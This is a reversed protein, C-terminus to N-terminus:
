WCASFAGLLMAGYTNEVTAGMTLGLSPFSNFAPGQSVHKTPSITDSSREQAYMTGDFPTKFKSQRESPQTLAAIGLSGQCSSQPLHPRSQYGPRLQM